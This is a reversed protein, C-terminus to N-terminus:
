KPEAIKVWEVPSCETYLDDQGDPDTSWGDDFILHWVERTNNPTYLTLTKKENRESLFALTWQNGNYIEDDRIWYWGLENPIDGDLRM